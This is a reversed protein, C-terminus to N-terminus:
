QQEPHLERPRLVWLGTGCVYIGVSWGLFYRGNFTPWVDDLMRTVLAEAMACFIGLCVMYALFQPFRNPIRRM